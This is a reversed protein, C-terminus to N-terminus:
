RGSIVSTFLILWENSFLGHVSFPPPFAPLSCFFGWICTYIYGLAFSREATRIFPKRICLSFMFTACHQLGGWGGGFVFSVRYERSFALSGGGVRRARQGCCLPQFVCMQPQAKKVNVPINTYVSANPM